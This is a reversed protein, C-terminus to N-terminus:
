FIPIGNYSLLGQDRNATREIGLIQSEFLHTYFGTGFALYFHIILHFGIDFTNIRNTIHDHLILQCM